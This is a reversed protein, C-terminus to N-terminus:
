GPQIEIPGGEVIEVKFGELEDPIKRELEPTMVDVFVQFCVQGECEGIGMGNVGPLEMIQAEYQEQVVIASKYQADWDNGTENSANMFNSCGGIVVGSGLLLLVLVLLRKM